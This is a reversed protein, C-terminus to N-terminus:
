GPLEWRKALKRINARIWPVLREILTSETRATAQRALDAQVTELASSLETVLAQAVGAVYRPSFGLERAMADLHGRGIHGPRSEGGVAFAFNRALGPYLATCMLDYFPALRYQGDPTQLVSLNKAHSDNNGVCLNFLVWLLFRKLDAANVGMGGLLERCHALSPGGDAEYKVDSPKGALQCLDLQHLRLLGGAGDPARDYRTVLCARTDPQLSAEAVGLGLRAALQMVLAENLASSWVGDFGRIDPKLIHTSPAAGEPWAPSGDPMVMLLLKDQAGALSIRAGDANEAVLAPQAPDLLRM